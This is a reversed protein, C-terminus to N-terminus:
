EIIRSYLKQMVEKELHYQGKFVEEKDLIEFVDTNIFFAKAKETLKYDQNYQKHMFLEIYGQEVLFNINETLNSPFWLRDIIKILTYDNAMKANSVLLLIAIHKTTM